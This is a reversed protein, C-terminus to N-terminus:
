DPMWAKDYIDRHNEYTYKLLEKIQDDDIVKLYDDNKIYKKKTAKLIM